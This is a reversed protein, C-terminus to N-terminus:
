QKRLDQWGGRSHLSVLLDAAKVAEARARWIADESEEMSYAHWLRGIYHDLYWRSMALGEDLLGLRRMVLLAGVEAVLEEEAYAGDGITRSPRGLMRRTAHVTEHLLSHMYDQEATVYRGARFRELPPLSIWPESEAVYVPTDLEEIEEWPALLKNANETSMIQTVVPVGLRLPLEIVEPDPLAKVVGRPRKSWHWSAQWEVREGSFLDAIFADEGNVLLPQMEKSKPTFGVVMKGATKWSARDDARGVYKSKTRPNKWGRERWSLQLYVYRHGKIEKVVRYWDGM